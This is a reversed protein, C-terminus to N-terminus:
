ENVRQAITWHRDHGTIRYTLRGLGEGPTGFSILDGDVELDGIIRDRDPYRTMRMLEDSIWMVDDASEVVCRRVAGEGVLLVTAAHDSM